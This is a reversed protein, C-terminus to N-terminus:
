PHVRQLLTGSIEKIPVMIRTGEYKFRDAGYQKARSMAQHVCKTVRGEDPHWEYIDQIYLEIKDQVKNWKVNISGFANKWNQNGYDKQKVNVSGFSNGSKVADAIKQYVFIKLTTNEAFVRTTDVQVEEGKGTLFHWLMKQADPYEYLYAFALALTGFDQTTDCAFQIGAYKYATTNTTHNIVANSLNINLMLGSLVTDTIRLEGEVMSKKLFGAFEITTINIDDLKKM